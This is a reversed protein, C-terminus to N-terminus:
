KVLIKKGNVINVGRGPAALRRGSLDYVVTGQATTIEMIGTMGNYRLVTYSESDAGHTGKVAVGDQDYAKFAVTIEGEGVEGLTLGWVNDYAGADELNGLQAATFAVHDGEVAEITVLGAFNLTITEGTKIGSGEAPEVSLLENPSYEYEVTTGRVTVTETATGSTFNLTYDTGSYLIVDSTMVHIFSGEGRSEMDVPGYVTEEGQNISFSLSAGEGLNTDATITRGTLLSALKAGEAPNSFVLTYANYKATFEANHDYGDTTQLGELSIVVGSKDAWGAPVAVTIEADNNTGPAVTLNEKAVVVKEEGSTFAVGTFEIQDAETYYIVVNETGALSEGNGPTIQTVINLRPIEYFPVQLHFSGLMGEDALILQGRADTMTFLRLDFSPMQVGTPSMIEATRLKGSFDVTVVNGEVSVPLQEYYEYGLDIPSYCLQINQEAAMPGSFTFTAKSGESGPAMYSMVTEPLEYSVLEYPAGGSKYTLTVDDAANGRADKIDSLLINFETGESLIGNKQWTLVIDRVLLSFSSGLYRMQFEERNEGCIIEAKGITINQNFTVTIFEKAAVDYTAGQEPDSEVLELGPNMQFSITGNDMVFGEVFYTTGETVPFQYAQKGNIYGAWDYDPVHTFEGTEGLTYVGLTGTEIMVGTAPAVIKGKFTEYQVLPYEQGVEMTIYDDPNVAASAGFASAALLALTLFKKM